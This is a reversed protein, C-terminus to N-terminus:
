SPMISGPVEPTIAMPATEEVSEVDEAGETRSKSFKRRARAKFADIPALAQEVQALADDSDDDGIALVARVYAHIAQRAEELPTAIDIAVPKASDASHGNKVLGLVEGHAAHADFLEEVLYDGVLRDLTERLSKDEKLIKVRHGIGVWMERSPLRVIEYGESFLLAIMAGAEGVAEISLGSEALTNLHSIIASTVAALRRHSPRKHAAVVHLRAADAAELKKLARELQKLRAKCRSDKFDPALFSSRGREPPCGALCRRPLQLDLHSLLSSLGTSCPRRRRMPGIFM